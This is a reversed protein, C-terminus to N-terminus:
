LVQISTRLWRTHTIASQCGMDYSTNLSRYEGSSDPLPLAEAPSLELPFPLAWSERDASCASDAVERLWIKHNMLLWNLSKSECHRCRCGCKM